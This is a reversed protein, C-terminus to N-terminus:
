PKHFPLIRRSLVVVKGALRLRPDLDVLLKASRSPYDLTLCSQVKAGPRPHCYALEGQLLWVSPHVVEEEKIGLGGSHDLGLGFPRRKDLHLVLGALVDIPQWGPHLRGHIGQGKNIFGSTRLHEFFSRLASLKLAITAAKSNKAQLHDRWRLVDDQIITGPYRHNTFLFFEDLSRKYADRTAESLARDCFNSVIAPDFRAM